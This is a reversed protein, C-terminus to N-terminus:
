QLLEAIYYIFHDAECVSQTDSLTNMASEGDVNIKRVVNIEFITFYTNGTFKRVNYLLKRITFYM